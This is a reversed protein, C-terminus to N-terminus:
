RRKNKSKDGGSSGFGGSKGKRAGGEGKGKRSDGFFKKKEGGIRGVLSSKNDWEDDPFKDVRPIASEQLGPSPLEESLIFDLQKKILDARKVKIKVKDGLQYRRGSRRGILCYNEEDFDYFDDRIDRTRVLGECRNSIIEVFLGWETVGSIVGEFEEGIKDELFQVQKYKISAREADAAKKEMESSHQCRFELENQDENYNGDLYKQLLRHVMVDPYRRIPSTFHTYYDFALGYHGINETSYIAKAMTRIALQEIVNEEKKGKVEKLLNNMSNALEQDSKLSLRYGFKGIFATFASIKEQDPSDHIRYVFPRQSKKDNKEKNGKEKQKESAKTKGVFEAVRKNALLMFEEILKNSDKQEKFFIGYPYGKEDLKFKVEIKDFGIAGRKFRRQRLVKALRDMTLVEEKFDGEGTEIIAQAEEYTFRRDSYIITRGFWEKVLEANDDLEFVASFCLKEENPRLSCVQNSLVEPLMPVVRDVLYVSTARSLAEQELITNERLYHTVDAIHVGIEWNGNELKRISLADDFDKADAPDITFTTIQRFDRRRRIEEETIELSINDAEKLVEPPFEYPLGYEELIAHIETDNEGPNGLVRLVEGVPNKGQETPWEVVHVVVKQGNAAEGIKALPVFIDTGLRPNDPIVFAFSKSIQITGVFDTKARQLIDIVEGEPKRGRGSVSVRVIDDHFAGHLNRAAVYIDQESEESIIFAYGQSTMDVRGTIYKQEDKTRYKGRDVEEIVEQNSLEELVANLLVKTSHETINLRSAIQKYNFSQGSNKRLIELVDNVLKLKGKGANKKKSM